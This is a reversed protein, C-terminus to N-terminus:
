LQVTDRKPRGRRRKGNLKGSDSVAGAQVRREHTYSWLLFPQSAYCLGSVTLSELSVKATRYETWSVRFMWRYIRPETSEIRKEDSKTLTWDWRWIHPPSDVGALASTENESIQENWQRELDTSSRDSKEHGNWMWSNMDNTNALINSSLWSSSEHRM